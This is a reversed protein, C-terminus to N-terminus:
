RQRLHSRVNEQERERELPLTEILADIAHAAGPLEDDSLYPNAEIMGLEMAAKYKAHNNQALHSNERGIESLTHRTWDTFARAFMERPTSWYLEGGKLSDMSKSQTIYTSPSVGSSSIARQYIDGSPVNRHIASLNSVLGSLDKSPIRKGTMKTLQEAVDCLTVPLFGPMGRTGALQRCDGLDAGKEILPDILRKAQELENPPLQEAQTARLISSWWGRANKQCKAVRDRLPKTIEDITAPKTSLQQWVHHMARILPEHDPHKRLLTELPNLSVVDSLYAQAGRAEDGFITRACLHDVFHGWEHSAVGGSSFRTENIENLGPVFHGAFKGSGQAGIALGLLGAKGIETTPVNLIDALDMFSDFSANTLAQRENDPVWNGYNVGKFGFTQMLDDPTADGTRWQPGARNLKIDSDDPEWIRAKKGSISQEAAKICEERSDHKLIINHRKDILFFAPAAELASKASEESDHIGGLFIRGREGLVMWQGNHKERYLHLGLEEKAVIRYGQVQWAAKKAPWGEKIEKAMEGFDKPSPQLKSLTRSGGIFKIEIGAPSTARWRGSPKALEDPWFLHLLPYQESLSKRAPILDMVNVRQGAEARSTAADIGMQEALSATLNGLLSRLQSKDSAWNFAADRIRNVGAIYGELHEDSTSVPKAGLSDYIVKLIRASMPHMGQEILAGYDPKPWVKAKTTSSARLAPDLGQIDEWKLGKDRNRRNYALEQGVDQISKM